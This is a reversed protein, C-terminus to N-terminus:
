KSAEQRIWQRVADAGRANFLLQLARVPGVPRMQGTKDQVLVTVQGEPLESYAFAETDAPFDEPRYEPLDPHPVTKGDRVESVLRGGVVLQHGDNTVVKCLRIPNKIVRVTIQTTEVVM